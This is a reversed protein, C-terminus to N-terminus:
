PWRLAWFGCSALQVWLAIPLLGDRGRAWLCSHLQHGAGM